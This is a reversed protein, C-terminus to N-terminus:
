CFSLSMFSSVKTNNAVFVRCYSMWLTIKHASVQSNRDGVVLGHLSIWVLADYLMKEILEQDIDHVDPTPVSTFQSEQIKIGVGEHVSPRLAM